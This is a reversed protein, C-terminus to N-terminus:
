PTYCFSQLPCHRGLKQDLTLRRISGGGAQLATMKLDSDQL